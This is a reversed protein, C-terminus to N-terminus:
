GKRGGSAHDAQDQGGFGPEKLSASPKHSFLERRRPLGSSLASSFIGSPFRTGDATLWPQFGPVGAGLGRAGQEVIHGDMGQYLGTKGEGAPGM